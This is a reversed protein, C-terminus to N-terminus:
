AKLYSHYTKLLSRENILAESLNAKMLRNVTKPYISRSLSELLRFSNVEIGVILVLRQLLIVENANLNQEIDKWLFKPVDLGDGRLSKGALYEIGLQHMAIDMRMIQNQLSVGGFVILMKLDAHRTVSSLAPLQNLLYKKLVRTDTIVKVFSDLIDVKTLLQQQQQLPQVLNEM